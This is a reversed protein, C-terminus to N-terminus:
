RDSTFHSWLIDLGSPIGLFRRLRRLPGLKSTATDVRGLATRCPGSALKSNPQCGVQLIPLVLCTHKYGEIRFGSCTYGKYIILWVTVGTTRM